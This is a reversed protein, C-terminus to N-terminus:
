WLAGQVPPALLEGLRRLEPDIVDAVIGAAVARVGCGECLPVQHGTTGPGACWPTGEHFYRGALWQKRERALTRMRATIRKLETKTMAATM